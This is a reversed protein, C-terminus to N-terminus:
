FPLIDRYALHGKALMDPIVAEIKEDSMGRLPALTQWTLGTRHLGLKRCADAYRQLRQESVDRERIAEAAVEGALRGSVIAHMMSIYGASDGVVMLGDKVVRALVEGSRSGLSVGLVQIPRADKFKRSLLYGADKVTDLKEVTIGAFCSRTDRTWVNCYGRDFLGGMHLELVGAELGRVPALELMVAGGFTEEPALGEQGAIGKVRGQAGQAAIVISGKVEPLRSSATAVGTVRGKERLVATVRTNLVIDTGATAALRALERDFEDRAVMYATRPPIPTDLVLKGRTSYYRRSRVESLIVRPDVSDVVANTFSSGQLRGCCHRPLGIAPHEEVLVVRVGKQSAARAASAGAPGAGVVIVDYERM